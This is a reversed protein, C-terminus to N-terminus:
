VAFLNVMTKVSYRRKWLPAHAQVGVCTVNNCSATGTIRYVEPTKVFCTAFNLVFRREDSM